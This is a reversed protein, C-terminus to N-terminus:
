DAIEAGAASTAPQACRSRSYAALIAGRSDRHRDLERKITSAHRGLERGIQRLSCGMRLLDAM